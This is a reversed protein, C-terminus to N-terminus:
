KQKEKFAVFARRVTEIISQSKVCMLIEDDTLGVWERKASVPAAYLFGPTPKTVWKVDVQPASENGRLPRVRVEAVPEQKEMAENEARLADREEEAAELRDLLETIAAPNAAAIFRFNGDVRAQYKGGSPTPREAIIIGGDSDIDAAVWGRWFHWPVPTAAQALRRLENTDTM